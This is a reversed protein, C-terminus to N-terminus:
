RVFDGAKHCGAGDLLGYRYLRYPRDATRLGPRPWEPKDNGLLPPM